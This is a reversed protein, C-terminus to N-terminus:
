AIELEVPEASGDCIRYGRLDLVGKTNLSVILYLTDPYNAEARDTASPMAPTTPHSHYIAFLTEGRERLTRLADIQQKPDMHYRTTPQPAVNAIPYCHEPGLATAGILGCVERDEKQQAHHLLQNVITRPIRVATADDKGVPTQETDIM